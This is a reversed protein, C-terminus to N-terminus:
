HLIPTVTFTGTTLYPNIFVIATSSDCDTTGGTFAPGSSKTTGNYPNGHIAGTLAWGSADLYMQLSTSGSSYIWQCESVNQTPVMALIYTGNDAGGPTGTVVMQLENPTVGSCITCPSCNICGPTNAVLQIEGFGVTSTGYSGNTGLAFYAGSVTENMVYNLTWDASSAFGASSFSVSAANICLNFWQNGSLFLGSGSYTTGNVVFTYSDVGAGNMQFEVYNSASGFYLRYSSSLETDMWFTVAYPPSPAHLYKLVASTNATAIHGAGGWTNLAWSGSMVQWNSTNLTGGM